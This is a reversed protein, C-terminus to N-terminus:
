PRNRGADGLFRARETRSLRRRSSWAMGGDMFSGRAGCYAQCSNDGDSWRLRGRERWLRFVCVPEGPSQPATARYVLASGELMGEGSLSCEHGNFFNLHIDFM